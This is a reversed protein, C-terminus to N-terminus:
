NAESRGIHYPSVLGRIGVGGYFRSWGNQIISKKPNIINIVEGIYRSMAM